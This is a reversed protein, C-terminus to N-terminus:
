FQVSQMKAGDLKAKRLWVNRLNVKRLDAGELNASDFVGFSLDAGPINIRRLDEGNFDVGARVLITIANAAAIRVNKDKNNKSREIIARLCKRFKPQKQAREALFQIVALDAIISRKGLPSDLLPKEIPITEEEEKDSEEFSMTSDVSGRRAQTPIAEEETEKNEELNPDFIALAAGYALISRHVFQNQTHSSVLPLADRLLKKKADSGFFEEKWSKTDKSTYTVIPNNPQNTYMANALGKLFEISSDKFGSQGLTRFEDQAGGKLGMERLSGKSRALWQDIFSDYLEVRTIRIESDSLGSSDVAAPLSELTLKLLFPNKVLDRLSPIQKLAKWYRDASWETRGSEVYQEIYHQIQDDGFTAITAEEFLEPKGGIENRDSPQFSDKYDAGIYDSRCSILMKARWGGPVNLYNSTYLNRTQQSEDYGDCILTFERTEKLEKIQAENFSMRELQKGILDNQPKDITALYIFLPIRGTFKEYKEWLSVELTKFFTSKGAGSDGLLLFVKKDSKLFEEVRPTLKFVEDSKANLKAMPSVYIEDGQKEQDKEKLRDVRMKQLPGEIDPKDLYKTLLPCAESKLVPRFPNMNQHDKEYAQIQAETEPTRHAKLAELQNQAYEAVAIDSPTKNSSSKGSLPKDSSPKDNGALSELIHLAWPRVSVHQKWTMDDTYMEGMFSIAGQRVEISWISNSAIEGLRQCLGWQFAPNQQCLLPLERILTEFDAFKGVQVLSDLARLTPYWVSKKNFNFSEKLADLFGQGSDVLDTINKYMGTLAGIGDLVGSVGEGISQLSGVFEMINFAKVASVLGSVGQVVLGTRRLVADMKSEDNPVLLMAQFAYAAEYIMSPDSDGKLGKLLQTLPEHLQERSLGSVECDVMSDLVRSIAQALQYLHGVSQGHTGEIKKHLLELIKVLDDSDFDASISNKMFQALGNTLHLDLLVSNNLGDVFTQLLERADDKELVVALSVVENVEETKKLDEQIFVRLLQTATAKLRAIEDPEKKIENIWTSEKTTDGSDPDEKDLKGNLLSLCYVLDQTKEIRGMAKPLEYEVKPVGTNLDNFFKLEVPKTDTGAKAAQKKNTAKSAPAQSKSAKSAPVQNQAKKAVPAESKAANAELAVDKVGNPTIAMIPDNSTTQLTDTSKIDQFTAASISPIGALVVPRVFAKRISGITSEPRSSIVSSSQPSSAGYGWKKAKAFSRQAKSARGLDQLITGHDHYAQAIDDRQAQGDKVKDFVKEADVIMAKAEKCCQIMRASSSGPRRADELLENAHELAEKLPLGSSSSFLGM